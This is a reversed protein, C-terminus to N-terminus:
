QGENLLMPSELESHLILTTPDTSSKGDLDQTVRVAYWIRDFSPTVTECITCSTASSDGAMTEIEIGPSLAEKSFGLLKEWKTKTDGTVGQKYTEGQLDLYGSNQSKYQEQAAAVESAYQELKSIKASKIYKTYSVGAIAALVGVVAVVVMLEVLTMGRQRSLTQELMKM